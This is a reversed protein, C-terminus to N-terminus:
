TQNVLFFKLKQVELRQTNCKDIDKLISNAAMQGVYCRTDDVELHECEKANSTFTSLSSKRGNTEVIHETSKKLQEYVTNFNSDEAVKRIIQHEKPRFKKWSSQNEGKLTEQQKEQTSHSHSGEGIIM